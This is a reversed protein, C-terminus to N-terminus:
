HSMKPHSENRTNMQTDNREYIDTSSLREDIVRIGLPLKEISNDQNSFRGQYIDFDILFGDYSCLCWAKYGFKIPKSQM